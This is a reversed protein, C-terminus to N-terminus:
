RKTLLTSRTQSNLSHYASRWSNTLAICSLWMSHDLTLSPSRYIFSLLLAVIVFRDNLYTHAYTHM